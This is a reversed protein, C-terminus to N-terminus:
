STGGRAFLEPCRERLDDVDTTDVVFMQSAAYGKATLWYRDEDATTAEYGLATLWYPVPEDDVPAPIVKRRRVPQRDRHWSLRAGHGAREYAATAAEADTGRYLLRGSASRVEHVLAAAQVPHGHDAATAPEQAVMKSM